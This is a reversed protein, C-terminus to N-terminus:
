KTMADPDELAFERRTTRLPAPSSFTAAISPRSPTSRIQDNFEPSPHTAKVLSLASLLVELRSMEVDEDVERSLSDGSTSSSSRTLLIAEVGVSAAATKGPDLMRTWTVEVATVKHSSRVAPFLVAIQCAGPSIV